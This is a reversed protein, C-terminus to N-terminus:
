ELYCGKGRVDGISSKMKSIEWISDVLYKGMKEAKDTLHHEEIYKVTAISAACAVPNGAFTGIFGAGGQVDDTVNRKTIVASLPFGGGMAKGLCLIDPVIGWHEVAMFKGTKGFGTFVEDAILLIENRRCIDVIGKMYDEPPVYSGGNVLVPEIILGAVQDAPLVAEFVSEIHRLCVLGCDPYRASFPCRYCTPYPIHIIDSVKASVGRKIRPDGSLEFPTGIFGHHSDHYSLIIPRKTYRRALSVALEVAETGSACYTLRGRSLDGPLKSLLLEACELVPVFTGLGRHSTLSRTQAISADVIETLCYGAVHCSESFVLFRNNDLDDITCGYAKDVVFKPEVGGRRTGFCEIYRNVLPASKPGPLSTNVHPLDMDSSAM